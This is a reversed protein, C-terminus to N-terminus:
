ILFEKCSVVFRHVINRERSYSEYENDSCVFKVLINRKNFAFCFTECDETLIQVHKSLRLSVVCLNNLTKYINFVTVFRTDPSARVYM